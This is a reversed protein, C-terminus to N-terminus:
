KTVFNSGVKFSWEYPTSDVTMSVSYTSGAKLPKRPIIVAALYRVLGDRVIKQQDPDPNNYTTADYACHEIETGDESFSHSTLHVAAGIDRGWGLSLMVPGGAPYHYGKCATLPDLYGFDGLSTNSLDGGLPPYERPSKLLL